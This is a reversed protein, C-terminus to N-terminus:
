SEPELKIGFTDRIISVLFVASLGFAMALCLGMFSHVELRATEIPHHEAIWGFHIELRFILYSASTALANIMFSGFIGIRTWAMFGSLALFIMLPAFFCAVESDYELWAFRNSLQIAAIGTLLLLGPLSVWRLARPPQHGPPETQEKAPISPESVANRGEAGGGGNERM